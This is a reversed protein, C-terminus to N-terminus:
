VFEYPTLFKTRVRTRPLVFVLTDTTFHGEHLMGVSVGSRSLSLVWKLDSALEEVCAGNSGVVSM